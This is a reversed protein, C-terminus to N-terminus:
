RGSPAWKVNVLRGGSSLGSGHADLACCSYMVPMDVIVLYLCLFFMGSDIMHCPFNKLALIDARRVRPVTM